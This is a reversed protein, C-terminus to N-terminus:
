AQTAPTPPVPQRPQPRSQAPAMLAKMSPSDPIAAIGLSGGFSGQVTVGSAPSSGGGSALLVDTAQPQEETFDDIRDNM